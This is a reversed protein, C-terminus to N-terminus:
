NMERLREETMRVMEYIDFAAPGLLVVFLAPFIFLVTPILLKVAAKQAREEAEQYRKQRLSEAHVRLPQVVSAGYRDAQEVVSALSRLEEVDFRDAFRKLAEGTTCGMQIERQVITLESALMPHAASLEAAVRKLAATLSLGAEVCIVIIDVADPLARRLDIQRKRKKVDLWVSPILVGCIVTMLGYMCAANFTIFGAQSALLWGIVPVVALCTKVAAYFAISNRRYLGAQILREALIRLKGNDEDVLAASVSPRYRGAGAVAGAAQPKRGVMLWGLLIISSVGTFASTLLVLESM